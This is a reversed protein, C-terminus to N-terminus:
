VCIASDLGSALPHFDGAAGGLSTLFLVTEGKGGWVLYRLRVNNVTSFRDVLMAASQASVSVKWVLFLCGLTNRVRWVM